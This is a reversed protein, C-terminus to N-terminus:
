THSQSYYENSTNVADTQIIQLTSYRGSVATDGIVQLKSFNNNSNNSAVGTTSDTNVSQLSIIIYSSDVLVVKPTILNIQKILDTATQVVATSGAWVFSPLISHVQTHLLTAGSLSLSTNVYIKVLVDLAIYDTQGALYAYELNISGNIIYTGAGIAYDVSSDNKTSMVITEASTSTIDQNSTKVFGYAVTSSGGNSAATLRGKQDVTITTNTYTGPTVATNALQISVTDNGSLDISKTTLGDITIDGGTGDDIDLTYLGLYDGFGAKVVSGTTDEFVIFLDNAVNPTTGAAHSFLLDEVSIKRLATLSNDYILLYDDASDVNGTFGTAGSILNAKVEAIGINSITSVDADITCSSLTKNTITQTTLTGVVSSTAGIGHVNTSAAIHSDINAHTNSGANTLNDHDINAENLTLTILSTSASLSLRNNASALSKLQFNSASKQYYIGTGGGINSVTNTEGATIISAIEVWAGTALLIKNTGTATPDPILGTSGAGSFNGIYTKTYNGLTSLTLKKSTGTSHDTTDSIDTVCLIDLNAPNSLTYTLQTFRLSAM